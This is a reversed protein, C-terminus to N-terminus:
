KGAEWIAKLFSQIADGNGGLGFAEGDFGVEVSGAAELVAIAHRLKLAAARCGNWKPCCCIEKDVALLELSDIAGDFPGQNGGKGKPKSM